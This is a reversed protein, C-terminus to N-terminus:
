LMLEKESLIDALDKSDLDIIDEIDFSEGQYSNLDASNDSSDRHEEDESDDSLKGTFGM